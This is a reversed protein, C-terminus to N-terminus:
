NSWGFSVLTILNFRAKRHAYTYFAQYEQYADHWFFFTFTHKFLCITDSHVLFCIKNLVYDPDPQM